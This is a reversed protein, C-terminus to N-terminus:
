NKTAGVIQGIKKFVNVLIRERHLRAMHYQIAETRPHRYREYAEETLIYPDTTFIGDFKEIARTFGNKELDDRLTILAWIQQCQADDLRYHQLDLADFQYQTNDIDIQYSRDLLAITEPTKEFSSHTFAVEYDDTDITENILTQAISIENHICLLM